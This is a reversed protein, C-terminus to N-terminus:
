TNRWIKSFILHLERAEFWLTRAQPKLEPARVVRKSETEERVRGAGDHWFSDDSSAGTRESKPVGEDKTM